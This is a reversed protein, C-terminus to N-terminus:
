LAGGPSSEAKWLVFREWREHDGSSDQAFRLGMGPSIEKELAEQPTVHHAVCAEFIVPDEGPIEVLLVVERGVPIPAYTYVFVGETSIDRTMVFSEADGDQIAASLHCLVRFHMRREERKLNQPPSLPSSQESAINMLMMPTTCRLVRRTTAQGDVGWVPERLLFDTLVRQVCRFFWFRAFDECCVAGACRRM